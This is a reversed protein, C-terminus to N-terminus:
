NMKESERSLCYVRGGTFGKINEMPNVTKQRNFPHNGGPTIATMNKGTYHEKRRNKQDTPRQNINKRGTDQLGFETVMGASGTVRSGDKEQYKGEKKILYGTIEQMVDKGGIDMLGDGTAGFTSGTDQCGSKTM